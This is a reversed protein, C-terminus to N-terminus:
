RGGGRCTPAGSLLPETSTEGEPDDVILGAKRLQRYGTRKVENIRLEFVKERCKTYIDFAFLALQDIRTEFTLLEDLNGEHSIHDALEERVAEKLIFVFSVAESPTLEQLSRIKIMSELHSCLERPDVPEAEAFLGDVIAQTGDSFAKGVPNAFQDKNRKLFASSDPSYTELTKDLWRRAIATKRKHLLGEFTM